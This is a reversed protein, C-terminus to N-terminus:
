PCNNWYLLVRPSDEVTAIRSFLLPLQNDFYVFVGFDSDLLRVFPPGIRDELLQARNWASVQGSNCFHLQLVREGCESCLPLEHTAAVLWQVGDDWLNICLGHINSLSFCVMTDTWSVRDISAGKLLASVENSPKWNPSKKVHAIADGPSYHSRGSRVGMVKLAKMSITM